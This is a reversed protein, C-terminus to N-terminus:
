VFDVGDEHAKSPCVRADDLAYQAAIFRGYFAYGAALALMVVLALLPLTM